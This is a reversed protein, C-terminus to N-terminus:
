NPESKNTPWLCKLKKPQIAERKPIIIELVGHKSQASIADSNATDPLSFRRYFSGYTREIRKYGEEDTKAETKKEGKITLVGDEMNVNIEEPKVGPIDAHIVFKDAEEKIDVAPAWEATATSGEAVNGHALERQLQSLLGWPEYRTINM